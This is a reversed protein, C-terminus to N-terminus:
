QVGGRLRDPGPRLPFGAANRLEVGMAGRPPRKGELSDCVDGWNRAATIAVLRTAANNKENTAQERWHDRLRTAGALTVAIKSPDQFNSKM